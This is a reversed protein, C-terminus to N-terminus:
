AVRSHDRLYEPIPPRFDEHEGYREFVEVALDAAPIPVDHPNVLLFAVYFLGQHQPLVARQGGFSLEWFGDANHISHQLPPTASQQPECDFGAFEPQVNCTAPQFNRTAGVNKDVLAGIKRRSGFQAGVRIGADRGKVEGKSSRVGASAG